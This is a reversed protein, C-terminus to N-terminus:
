KRFSRKERCWSCAPPTVLIGIAKGYSANYAGGIPLGYSFGLLVEIPPFDSTQCPVSASITSFVSSVM